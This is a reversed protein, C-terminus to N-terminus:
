ESTIAGAVIGGSKRTIAVASSSPATMAKSCRSCGTMPTCNWGSDAAVSCPYAITARKRFPSRARISVSGRCASPAMVARSSNRGHVGDSSMRHRGNTGGGLGHDDLADDGGDSFVATDVTRRHADLPPGLDNDELWEEVRRRIAVDCGRAARDDIESVIHPHKRLRCDRVWHIRRHRRTVDSTDHQCVATRPTLELDPVYVRRRRPGADLGGDDVPAEASLEDAEVAGAMGHELRRDIGGPQVQQLRGKHLALQRTQLHNHVLRCASSLTFRHRQEACVNPAGDSSLERISVRLPNRWRAPAAPTAASVPARPSNAALNSRSILPPRTISGDRRSSATRSTAMVPPRIAATSALRAAVSAAAVISAAPLSTTGPRISM